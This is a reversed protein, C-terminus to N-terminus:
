SMSVAAATYRTFGERIATIAAEKIHDPTEFDPEGLGFDVVDIGEAKMQKAIAAMALTASPSTNKARNSLHVAM